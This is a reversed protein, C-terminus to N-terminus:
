NTAIEDRIGEFQGRRVNELNKREERTAAAEYFYVPVGAEKWIREGAQRALAVCEEITVGELPGFPIVDAAGLRPHEGKHKTLDILEVAKKVARVAAEVVADPPAVFTIVSRHHDADMERDLIVAGHVSEIAAVIADVSSANRGESFNPVCEVLKTM